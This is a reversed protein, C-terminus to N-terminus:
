GAYWAAMEDWAAAEEWGLAETDVEDTNLRVAPESRDTQELLDLPTM